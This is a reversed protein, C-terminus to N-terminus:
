EKRVKKGMSHTQPSYNTSYYNNKQFDMRTVLLNRLIRFNLERQLFKQHYQCPCHEDWLPQVIQQM